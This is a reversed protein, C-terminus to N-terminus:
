FWEAINNDEEMWSGFSTRREVRAPFYLGIEEAKQRLKRLISQVSRVGCGVEEAIEGSTFNDMFMAYVKAVKSSLIPFLQPARAQVCALLTRVQSQSVGLVDAADAVTLGFFDQHCLRYAAEQQATIFRVADDGYRLRAVFELGDLQDGLTSRLAERTETLM